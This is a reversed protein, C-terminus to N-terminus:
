CREMSEQVSNYACCGRAPRAAPRASSRSPSAAELALHSIANVCATFDASATAALTVAENMVASFVAGNHGEFTGVWDGTIGECLIAKGDLGASLLFFGDPTLGSHHVQRVPRSHGRCMLPINKDRTGM